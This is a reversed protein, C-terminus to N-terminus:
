APQAVERRSVWGLVPIALLYLAAAMIWVSGIFFPKTSFYVGTALLPGIISTLSMASALVGQLEGQRDASVEASM